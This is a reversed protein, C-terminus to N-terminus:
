SYNFQQAKYIGAIPYLLAPSTGLNFETGYIKKLANVARRGMYMLDDYDKVRSKTYSWPILWMQSYAHLTLYVKLQDKLDM